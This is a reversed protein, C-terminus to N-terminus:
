KQKIEIDTRKINNTRKQKMDIHITDHISGNDTNHINIYSPVVPIIGWNWGM